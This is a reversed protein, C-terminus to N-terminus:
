GKVFDPINEEPLFLYVYKESGQLKVAALYGGDKMCYFNRLNQTLKEIKETDTITYKKGFDKQIMFSNNDMACYSMFCMSLPETMQNIGIYPDFKQLTISEIQEEQEELNPIMQLLGYKSLFELVQSDEETLYWFANELHYSYYTCDYDANQSFMLVAKPISTPYYYSTSEKKTDDLAAAMLLEQRQTDDIELKWTNQYFPDMLYIDGTQYADQTWLLSESELTGEFLQQRIEKRENSDELELLMSIQELSARDYYWHYTKGNSDQYQFEIDYPIVTNSFQTSDTSFERKKNEVFNKQIEVIKQITEKEKFTNESKVYYGSSSSSGAAESSLHSPAGVYSVSAQVFNKSQLLSSTREVGGIEIGKVAVIGLLLLAIMGIIKKKISGQLFSVSKSIGAMEAKRRCFLYGALVFLVLLAITWIVLLRSSIEPPTSTELPRYFRNKEKLEEYFFLIPNVISWKQVLSEEIPDSGVYAYMDYVNGWYFKKLLWNSGLSVFSILSLLGLSDVIAEWWTGTLFCAIATIFFATLSTLVMGIACYLCANKMGTYNGLAMLNLGYSIAMPIGISLVISIVGVLSRIAFLKKRSIGLAFYITIEKKHHVFGLLLMAFAIGVIVVAVQAIPIWKEYIFQYKLQQHTYEINFISNTGLGATSFPIIIIFTVLSLIFLWLVNGVVLKIDHFIM